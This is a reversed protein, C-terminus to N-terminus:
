RYDSKCPEVRLSEMFALLDSKKYRNLRGAKYYLLRRQMSWKYLTDTSVALMEAAEQVTLFVDNDNQMINVGMFTITLPLSIEKLNM